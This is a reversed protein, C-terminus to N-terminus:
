GLIAMIAFDSADCIIKFPLSFDPHQMIPFLVLLSRLKEFANVCSEDIGFPGDKTLLNTLPHPVKSFDKIFGRYFGAHDWFTQVQKV